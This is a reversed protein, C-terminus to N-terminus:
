FRINRSVVAPIGLTDLTGPDTDCVFPIANVVRMGNAILGGDGGHEDAM